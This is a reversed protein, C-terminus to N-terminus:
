CGSPSDIVFTFSLVSHYKQRHRSALLSHAANALNALVCVLLTPYPPWTPPPASVGNFSILGRRM